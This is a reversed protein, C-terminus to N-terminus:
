SQAISLSILDAAFRELEAACSEIVDRGPRPSHGHVLKSRLNYSKSFFSESNMDMYRRDGLTRALERGAQGISETRMQSLSGRLSEAESSGVDTQDLLLIFEDVLAQVRDDRESPSLLTEIAMMLLLFRADSYTTFFSASFLEYALQSEADLVTGTSRAAVLGKVFRDSNRGLVPTVSMSAFIPPPDCEFTVIGHVDNVARRGAQQEVWALGATTFAGKAARDGFDVGVLAHAFAVMLQSRWLEAAASAESESQFASGSVIWTEAGKIPEGDKGAKM